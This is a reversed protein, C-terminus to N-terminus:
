INRVTYKLLCFWITTLPNKNENQTNKFSKGYYKHAM